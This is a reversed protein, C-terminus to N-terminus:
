RVRVHSGQAPVDQAGGEAARHIRECHQRFDGAARCHWQAHWAERVCLQPCSITLNGIQTRYQLQFRLFIHNVTQRIYTRLHVMKGYIRHLLTKLYDRERPDESDFLDLMQM